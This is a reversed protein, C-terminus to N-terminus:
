MTEEAQQKKIRRIVDEDLYGYCNPPRKIGMKNYVKDVEQQLPKLEKKFPYECVQWVNNKDFIYVYEIWSNKNTLQKFSYEKAEVGTEGRDRGYAVVVDEQRDEFTHTYRPDPHLNPYLISIDGINLLEEVKQRTNYHDLLLAGNWAVYGDSHCYITKYKGNDLEECIYSRTSM